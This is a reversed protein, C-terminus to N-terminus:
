QVEPRYWYDQLLKCTTANYPAYPSDHCPAAVPVTAVLKGGVTKNLAAWDKPGPWCADGPFCRCKSDSYQCLVLPLCSLVLSLLLM